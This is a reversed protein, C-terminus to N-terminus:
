ITFHLMAFSSHSLLSSCQGHLVRHVLLYLRLNFRVSLPLIHYKSTILTPSTMSPFGFITKLARNSLRILRDYQTTHLCHVYANSAYELHSQITSLYFTRRAPAPMQDRVKRFMALKSSIKKELHSVHAHFHLHCDLHLGLYKISDLPRITTSGISIHTDEDLSRGKPRFVIFQTKQDNILFGKRILYARLTLIDRTLKQLLTPLHKGALYLSIDDAYQRLKCYMTLSPLQRVAINFLVPGLVSGQPVGRSCPYPDGISCHTAVHQTRERLYSAFWHLVQGGIGCQQLEFLLTQHDVMDFAKSLDLFAAVVYDGSDLSRHWDNITTSLLDECSHHKRYAFQEIPIVPPEAADIFETLQLHVVRELLKSAIPLLSIPRYNAPDLHDGKKYIPRVHAIKYSAPFLGSALSRNYLEALSPSIVDSSVKLIGPPISDSGAAKTGNVKKLLNVVNDPTVLCFDVCYDENDPGHPIQVTYSLNPEANAISSFATTLGDVGVSPETYTTKRGIMDHLLKWEAKGNRKTQKLANQFYEAKKKKAVLKCSRRIARFQQVINQNDHHKLMRRHLRKKRHYLQRLDDDVWAAPKPKTTPSVLIIPCHSDLVDRYAAQWARVSEDLSSPPPLRDNIQEISNGVDQLFQRKNINRLPPKRLAVKPSHTCHPAPLLAILDLIVLHHDSIDCPVVSHREAHSHVYSSSDSQKMAEPSQMTRPVLVLDLCTNSPFRTPTTIVNRMSINNTFNQLHRYHNHTPNSVDVNFDGLMVLTTKPLSTCVDDSLATVSHWFDILSSPPRYVCIVTIPDKLPMHLILAEIPLIHPKEQSKISNKVYICVGGGKKSQRDRRYLRFGKVDIVNSPV